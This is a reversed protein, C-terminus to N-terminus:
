PIVISGLCVAEVPVAEVLLALSSTMGKVPQDLNEVIGFSFLSLSNLSNASGDVIAEHVETSEVLDSVLCSNKICSTIGEGRRASVGRAEEEVAVERGSDAMEEDELSFNEETGKELDGTVQIKSVDLIEEKAFLGAEGQIASNSQLTDKCGAATRSGVDYM